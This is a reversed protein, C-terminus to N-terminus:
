LFIYIMVVTKLIKAIYFVCLMYVFNMWCHFTANANRQALSKLMKNGKKKREFFMEYCWLSHQLSLMVMPDSYMDDSSHYFKEIKLSFCSCMRLCIVKWMEMKSKRMCSIFALLHTIKNAKILMKWLNWHLVMSIFGFICFFLSCLILKILFESHSCKRNCHRFLQYFEIKALPKIHSLTTVTFSVIQEKERQQVWEFDFHMYFQIFHWRRWPAITQMYEYLEFHESQTNSFHEFGMPRTRIGHAQHRWHFSVIFMTLRNLWVM